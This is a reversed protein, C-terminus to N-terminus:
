PLLETADLPLHAQMSLAALWKRLRPINKDPGFALFTGDASDCGMTEALILRRLSNVRGMHVWIGRRRAEASLLAAERGLKWATTGGLFLADIDSWPVADPVLGNQAVLAAPYGAARIRHLMPLSRRMTASADGVVDPATAFLCREAHLGRRGLWALYRDDDHRDPQTFCGTDAAWMRDMPINTQSFPTNLVGVGEPLNPNYHGSLYIM